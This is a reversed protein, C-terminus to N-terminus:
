PKQAAREKEYADYKEQNVRARCEEAAGPPQRNCENGASQRLGEYWAQASCGTLLITALCLTSIWPANQM